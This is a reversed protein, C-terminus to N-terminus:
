KQFTWTGRLIYLVCFVLVPISLLGTLYQAVTVEEGAKFIDHFFLFDVLLFGVILAAALAKKMKWRERDGVPAQALCAGSGCKYARVCM